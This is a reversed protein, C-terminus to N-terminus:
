AWQARDSVPRVQLASACCRKSPSPRCVLRPASIRASPSSSPPHHLAIFSRPRSLPPRHTVAGHLADYPAACLVVWVSLTKSSLAPHRRRMPLKQISEVTGESFRSVHRGSQVCAHAHQRGVHDSRGNPERKSRESEKRELGVFPLPSPEIPHPPSPRPSVAHATCVFVNAKPTGARGLLANRWSWACESRQLTQLPEPLSSCISTDRKGQIVSLKRPSATQPQKRAHAEHPTYSPLVPRGHNSERILTDGSM